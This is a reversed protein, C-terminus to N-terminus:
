GKKKVYKQKTSFGGRYCKTKTHYKFIECIKSYKNKDINKLKHLDNHVTSKSVKSIKSLERITCNTKIIYNTELIIRNLIKSNM